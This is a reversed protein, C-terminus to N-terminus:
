RMGLLATKFVGYVSYHPYLFTRAHSDLLGTYVRAHRSDASAASKELTRDLSFRDIVYQLHDMEGKEGGSRGEREEKKQRWM